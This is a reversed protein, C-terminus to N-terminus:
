ASVEVWPVVYITPISEQEEDIEMDSCYDMDYVQESTGGGENCDSRKEETQTRKKDKKDGSKETRHKDGKDDREKDPEEDRRRTKKTTQLNSRAPRNRHYRQHAAWLVDESETTLVVDKVNKINQAGVASPKDAPWNSRKSDNLNDLYVLRVKLAHSINLFGSKSFPKKPITTLNDKPLPDDESCLPLWRHTVVPTKSTGLFVTAEGTENDYSCVYFPHPPSPKKPAYWNSTDESVRFPPDTEPDIETLFRAIPSDAHWDDPQQITGRYLHNPKFPFSCPINVNM